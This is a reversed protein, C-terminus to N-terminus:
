LDKKVKVLDPLSAFYPIELFQEIDKQTKIKRNFFERMLVVGVSIMGGVVFGIIVNLTLNPSVPTPYVQAKDFYNLSDHKYLSKYIVETQKTILDAIIKAEEPDTHKVTLKIIGTQDKDSVSIANRLYSPTVSIGHESKLEKVVPDLVSNSTSVRSFRRSLEVLVRFDDSKPGGVSNPDPVIATQTYSEYKMDIGYHTFLGVALTVILTISIILLFNKFLIGILEKLDITQEEHAMEIVM